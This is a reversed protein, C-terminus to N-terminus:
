ILGLVGNIRGNLVCECAKDNDENTEFEIWGNTFHVAKVQNGLEMVANPLDTGYAKKM